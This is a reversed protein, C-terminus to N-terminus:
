TTGEYLDVTWALSNLVRGLDDDSLKGYRTLFRERPIPVTLHTRAVTDKKLGATKTPLFTNNPFKRRAETHKSTCPVVLVTDEKSLWDRRIVVGPHEGAAGFDIKWIEGQLIDM